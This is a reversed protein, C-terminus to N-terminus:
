DEGAELFRAFYRPSQYAYPTKLNKFTREPWIIEVLAFAVLLVLAPGWDSLTLAQQSLYHIMLGAITGFGLYSSALGPNYITKKGRSKFRALMKIGFFTHMGVELLCFGCIALMVFAHQSFPLCVLYIAEAVLITVMDSLRNMPYANYRHDKEGYILNYQYHFGGPLEWEECAHLPLLMAVLYVLRTAPALQPGWIMLGALLVLGWVYFWRLWHECIKKLM